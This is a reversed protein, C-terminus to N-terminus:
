YFLKFKLYAYLRAYHKILGVINFSFLYIFIKIFYNKIKSELKNIKDNNINKFYILEDLTYYFERLYIGKFKNRVKSIGHIHICKSNYIQVIHKNIGKIKKCLDYDSFFLFLNENFMGIKKLDETKLFMSSGLVKEVCVNGEVNLVENTNEKEPLKGSNYSLNGAEDYSTPSVLGCSSNSKIYHYLEAINEQDIYCDPNKIFTYETKCYSIAKNFGRSFGLNKDSLYYKTIKFKSLIKDKLKRDCKNDVIIIEFNKIKELTRFIIEETEDYFVMLISIDSIYNM